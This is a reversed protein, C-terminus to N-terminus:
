RGLVEVINTQHLVLGCRYHTNVSHSTQELDISFLEDETAGHISSNLDEDESDVSFLIDMLIGFVSVCFVLLKKFFKFLSNMM